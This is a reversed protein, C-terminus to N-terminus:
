FGYPNDQGGRACHGLSVSRRRTWRQAHAPPLKNKSSGHYGKKFIPGDAEWGDGEPTSPVGVPRQGEETDQLNDTECRDHSPGDWQWAMCRAGFCPVFNNYPCRHDEAKTEDISPM